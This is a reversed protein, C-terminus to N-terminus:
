SNKEYIAFNYDTGIKVYRNILEVKRDENKEFVIKRRIEIFEEWMEQAKKTLITELGFDNLLLIDLAAGEPSDGRVAKVFGNNDFKLIFRECAEFQTAIIPSHTAFFFQANTSINSYKSILERQIDPFLSREPEDVLVITNNTNLEFLPLMSLVIQKTGTSWASFPINKGDLTNLKIFYLDEKKELDFDITVEMNFNRIIPNIFNAIRKFPSPNENHWKELDKTLEKIRQSNKLIARSFQHSKNLSRIMYESANHLIIEWIDVPNDKEFDFFVKDKLVDQRKKVQKKIDDNTSIYDLPDSLPKEEYFKSSKEILEAPYFVFDVGKTKKYNQYITDNLKTKYLYIDSDFNNHTYKIISQELKNNILLSIQWIIKKDYNMIPPEYRESYLSEKLINLLTTKGTGSQGIFCVKELPKGENKHGKPYRLDISFNKFQHYNEIEIKSIKM